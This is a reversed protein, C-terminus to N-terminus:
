FRRRFGYQEHIYRQSKTKLALFPQWPGFVAGELTKVRLIKPPAEDPFRDLQVDWSLAPGDQNPYAAAVFTRAPKEM